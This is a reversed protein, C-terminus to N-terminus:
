DKRLYNGTVKILFALSLVSLGVGVWFFVFGVAGSGSGKLLIDIAVAVSGVLFPLFLIWVGIVVIPKPRIETAKVLVRAEDYISGLPDLGATTGISFNCGPCRVFRPDITIRCSPCLILNANGIM